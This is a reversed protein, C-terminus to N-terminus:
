KQPAIPIDARASAEARIINLTWQYRSREDRYRIEIYTAYAVLTLLLVVGIVIGSVISVTISKRKILM